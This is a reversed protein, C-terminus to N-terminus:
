TIHLWKPGTGQKSVSTSASSKIKEILLQAKHEEPADPLYLQLKSLADQMWDHPSPGDFDATFPKIFERFNKSAAALETNSFVISAPASVPNSEIGAHMQMQPQTQIGQANDSSENQMETDTM